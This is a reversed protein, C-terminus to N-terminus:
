SLFTGFIPVEGRPPEKQPLETFPVQLSPEM